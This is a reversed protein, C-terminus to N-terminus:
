LEAYKTTLETVMSHVILDANVPWRLDAIAILEFHQSLAVSRSKVDSDRDTILKLRNWLNLLRNLHSDIEPPHGDGASGLESKAETNQLTAIEFQLSEDLM